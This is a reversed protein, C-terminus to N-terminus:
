WPVNEEGEEQDQPDNPHNGTETTPPQALDWLGNGVSEFREDSRLHSSVVTVPNQGGIRAGMESLRAQIDQRHLAGSEALMDYIVNSIEGNPVSREAPSTASDPIDDASGGFFELTTALASRQRHLEARREDIRGLEADIGGIADTIDQITSQSPM